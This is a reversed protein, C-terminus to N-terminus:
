TLRSMEFTAVVEPCVVALKLRGAGDSGAREGRSGSHSHAAFMIMFLFGFGAVGRGLRSAEGGQSETRNIVLHSRSLPPSHPIMGHTLMSIAALNGVVGVVGISFRTLLVFLM